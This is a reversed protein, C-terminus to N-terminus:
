SVEQVALDQAFGAFDTSLEFVDHLRELQGEDRATGVPIRDALTEDLAVEVLGTAYLADALVHVTAGADGHVEMGCGGQVAQAEEWVIDDVVLEGECGLLVHRLYGGDVRVPEGFDSRYEVGDAFSVHGTGGSPRIAVQLKRSLCLNLLTKRPIHSPPLFNLLLPCLPLHSLRWLNSRRTRRSRGPPPPSHYTSLRLM